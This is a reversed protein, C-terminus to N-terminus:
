QELEMGSSLIRTGDTMIFLAETEPLSEILALGKEKGLLLCTTSLADGDISKQSLITVSAVGNDSPYGSFPDLIHHYRKGEYEFYREYIGSTVISQDTASLVGIRAGDAHFPDQVGIRFPQEGESGILLINRGLDIVGSTVGEKVLLTKVCDAIYGKAIAGLNARMGAKTLYARGSEVLLEDSSILARAATLEETTPYHGANDRINWLEILPGATIDFYGGSLSEYEKAVRLVYETEPAIEVWAKGAMEALRYLDSGEKEVSLLGELRRIEDMAQDILATDTRDYLTITVVTDLLLETKSAVPVAKQCAGVCLLLAITLALVRKM